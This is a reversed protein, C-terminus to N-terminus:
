PYPSSGTIIPEGLTIGGASIRYERTTNATSSGRAKIITLARKIDSGDQVYQLLVVNDVLHSIGADSLRSTHFLEPTEYSFM